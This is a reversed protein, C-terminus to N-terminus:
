EDKTRRNWMEDTKDQNAFRFSTMAGCLRCDYLSLNGVGKRKTVINGCFPCHKLKKNNNM